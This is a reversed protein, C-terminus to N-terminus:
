NIFQHKPILRAAIAKHVPAVLKMSDAVTLTYSILSAANKGIKGKKAQMTKVAKNLSTIAKSMDAVNAEYEANAKSCRTVTATLDNAM